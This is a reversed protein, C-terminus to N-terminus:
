WGYKDGRQIISSKPNRPWYIRGKLVRVHMTKTLKWDDFISVCFHCANSRFKQHMSLHQLYSTGERQDNQSNGYFFKSLNDVSISFTM